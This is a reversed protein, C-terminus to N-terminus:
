FVIKLTVIEFPKLKILLGKNFEREQEQQQLELIDDDLARLNTSFTRDLTSAISTSVDEMFDELINCKIARKSQRMLRANTHGGYAEYLRIIIEDSNEAKKIADIIVNRANDARFTPFARPVSCASVESKPIIKSLLPSNFNYGEQVVDSQLFHQPHPYVAYRFSHHGIDCNSDPAKSSRLLSLRIKDGHAYESMDAFKQAVVEFKAAEWSTNYHTPRTVYGYQCEYNVVDTFIDWAFEVKLFQRNENWDVETDFDLRRSISSLIVTQRLRSTSSIRKEILLSARLPGQELIQISGEEVVKYKELHYIEVDWADWFLPVDEYLKFVNGRENVKIVEREIEKDYLQILHGSNDFTAKTYNNELVVNNFQDTHVKAVQSCQQQLPIPLSSTSSNNIDCIVASMAKVDVLIYGTSGFASYQQQQTFIASPVIPISSLYAIPVELIEQRDWALTNIAVILKEEDSTTNELIEDADMTGHQDIPNDRMQKVLRDVKTYLQLCDEYVMEISSGSIVDHFQPLCTMKWLDDIEDKPYQYLDFNIMVFTAMMELDRLLFECTRNLKKCFAQTTYTRTSYVLEGKWSPLTESTPNISVVGKMKRLREIMSPLPRGGGGDGNGYVLLSTNWYVKDKDNKVSRLSEEPACQKNYTDSPAMHTSKQETNCRKGFESKSFHLSERCPMHTDMEVWAGGTPSFQNLSVKEKIRNYLPPYHDKIWQYQQPAVKLITEEFPWLWATDIHCHGVAYITHTLGQMIANDILEEDNPNFVNLIKNAAFLAQLGRLSDEPLDRAMGLIIQYDYFLYAMEIYLQVFEGGEAQTTLIYEHRADSGAGGTLGQLAVREISWIMAESDSNWIFRVEQGAFENPIRLQLHFWHTSWSPGFWEVQRTPGFEQRIANEFTIRQLNPVSYVFLNIYEEIKPLTTKAKYLHALLNTVNGNAAVSMFNSCRDITISRIQRPHDLVSPQLRLQQSLLMGISISTLIWLSPNNNM